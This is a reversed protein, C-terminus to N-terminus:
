PRRRRRRSCPRQVSLCAFMAFAMGHRGDASLCPWRSAGVSVLGLFWFREKPMLSLLLGSCAKQSKIKEGDALVWLEGDADVADERSREAGLAGRVRGRGRGSGGAFARCSLEWGDGAM